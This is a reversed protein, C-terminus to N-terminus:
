YAGNKFWYALTADVYKNIKNASHAMDKTM